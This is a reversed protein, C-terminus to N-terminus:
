FLFKKTPTLYSAPAHTFQQIMLRQLSIVIYHMCPQYITCRLVLEGVLAIALFCGFFGKNVPYAEQATNLKLIHSCVQSYWCSWINYPKM